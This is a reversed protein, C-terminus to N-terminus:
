NVLRLSDMDMSVPLFMLFIFFIATLILTAYIVKKESLLHMFYGAVLSAKIGAVILALTVAAVVSLHLASIAVTVVTLGMLSIFVILYKRVSKKVDDAHASDM